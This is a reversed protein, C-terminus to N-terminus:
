IPRRVWRGRVKEHKRWFYSKMNSFLDNWSEPTSTSICADNDIALYSIVDVTEIM